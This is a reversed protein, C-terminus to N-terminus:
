TWQYLQNMFSDILINYNKSSQWAENLSLNLIYGFYGEPNPFLLFETESACFSSELYSGNRIEEVQESTPALVSWNGIIECRENVVYQFTDPFSSLYTAWIDSDGENESLEGYLSKDNSVLQKSITEATHGMNLLDHYKVSRVDSHGGSKPPTSPSPLTSAKNTSTTTNKKLSNVIANCLRDIDYKSKEFSQLTRLTRPLEGPSMDDIYSFLLGSQHGSLIDNYFGDWEYKVWDSMINEKSTGVVIVVSTNDLANDISNKYNSIGMSALTINSFFVNLGRQCLAHYLEEAMLCDKTPNGFEDSNKFSLFVEFRNM